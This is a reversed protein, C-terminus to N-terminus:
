PQGGCFLDVAPCTPGGPLVPQVVRSATPIPIKGSRMGPKGASERPLDHLWCEKARHSPPPDRADRRGQRLM